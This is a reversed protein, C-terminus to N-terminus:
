CAMGLPGLDPRFAALPPGFSARGRAVVRVGRVKLDHRFGVPLLPKRYQGPSPHHLAEESPESAAPPEGLVELAGDGARQCPQLHGDDPDEEAAESARFGM